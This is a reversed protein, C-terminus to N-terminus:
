GDCRVPADFLCLTWDGVRSFGIARYAAIAAPDASFLTARRRGAARAQALHLAVARRAHGRGRRGPPTYVGGVQVLQATVANFGTMSLAQPGEMLVRYNDGALNAEHDRRGAVEAADPPLHLAEMAYDRRWGIMEDRDAAGLPQLAGPGEPVKLAALDLSFHAEDRDLTASVGGLGLAALLPRAHDAPGVVACLTRGRLARAAAAWDGGPLAPLVTGDRTVSLVDTVRGGARTVWMAPAYRDSGDLGFRELNSLPFMAREAIEGLCARIAPLDATGARQM